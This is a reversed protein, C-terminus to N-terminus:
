KEAKTVPFKAKTHSSKILYIKISKINVIYRIYISGGKFMKFHIKVQWSSSYYRYITFVTVSIPHYKVEELIHGQCLNVSRLKRLSFQGEFSAIYSEFFPLFFLSYLFPFKLILEKKFATWVSFIRLAIRYLTNCFGM